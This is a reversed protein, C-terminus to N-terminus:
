KIPCQKMTPARCQGKSEITFAGGKYTAVGSADVHLDPQVQEWIKRKPNMQADPEGQFGDCYVTDGIQAGHPVDLIEVQDPTSACMIMGQSMIGRMKAPKLNLLFVAMRGQMQELQYHKVLGSIITRPTDEGVDVEEVYLGDADPHKKVNVIKGVRMKLRSVDIPKEEAANAAAKPKPNQKPKDQKDKKKDKKAPQSDTKSNEVAAPESKVQPAASVPQLKATQKPIAIQKVGNITEWYILTDKLNQLNSKLVANNTQLRNIEAQEKEQRQKDALAQLITLQQQLFTATEEAEKNRAVLDEM